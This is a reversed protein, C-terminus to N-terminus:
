TYASSNSWIVSVDSVYSDFLSEAFDWTAVSMFGLTFARFILGVNKTFLTLTFSGRLFHALFPRLLHSLFPIRFLIPLIASRALGFLIIHAITGMATLVLASVVVTFVRAIMFSPVEM